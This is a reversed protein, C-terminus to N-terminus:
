AATELSAAEPKKLSAGLGTLETIVHTLQFFEIPFNEALKVAVSLDIKPNLSGSELMSLRKAVEPATTDSALGMVERMKSALEKRSAISDLARGIDKHQAEAEFARALEDSTLGRVTWECSTKGDEGPDFFERLSEVTITRERPAFVAQDFREPNFPM